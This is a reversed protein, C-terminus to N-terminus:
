WTTSRFRRPGASSDLLLTIFGLDRGATVVADTLAEVSTADVGRYEDLLM